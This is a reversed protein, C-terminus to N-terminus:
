YDKPKNMKASYYQQQMNKGLLSLTNEMNPHMNQRDSGEPQRRSNFLM